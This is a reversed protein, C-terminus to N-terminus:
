SIEIPFRSIFEAGEGPKSKIELAGGYRSIIHKVIALGLGTGAVRSNRSSDARYFRETLKHIVNANIGIGDDRVSIVIDDEDRVVKIVIRVGEPNHRVANIVINSIASHLDGKQAMLYADDPCELTIEHVGESIILAEKVIEELLIKLDVKDVPVVTPEDELRSLVILDDALAQMRIVQESMQQYARHLNSKNIVIGDGLTELYGRLVTLPTRLEHSVNGVFEKRLKELNKLQTIDSIVLVIEGDGFHSATFVLTREPLARSPLEVEGEFVQKNLYEAFLPDRILSTLSHGKDSSTLCLQGRAATNWWELRLDSKLVLIGQDIAHTLQSIRQVTGRMKRIAKIQRKKHSTLNTYIEKWVGNVAPPTDLMGSRIWSLLKALKTHLWLSYLFIGLLLSEVIYSSLWGVILSLFCILSIRGLETVVGAQFSM